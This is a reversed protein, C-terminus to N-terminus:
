CHGQQTALYRGQMQPLKGFDSGLYRNCLVVLGAQWTNRNVVLTCSPLQTSGLKDEMGGGGGWPPHPFLFNNALIRKSCVEERNCSAWFDGASSSRSGQHHDCWPTESSWVSGPLGLSPIPPTAAAGEALSLVVRLCPLHSAHHTGPEQSAPVGLVRPHTGEGPRGYDPTSSGM